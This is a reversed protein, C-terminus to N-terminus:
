KKTVARRDLASIATVWVVAAAYGALVDTPYHLGLYIRSLGIINVLFAAVIWAAARVAPRRTRASFMAASQIYFCFSVLAHGSPFGYSVPERGFFVQPRSRHFSLKLVPELLYAGAINIAFLLAPRWGWRRYLWLVVLATGPLLVTPAGLWTAAAFFRTLAPTALSHVAARITLDLALAQSSLVQRALWAFLLLAAVAAALSVV